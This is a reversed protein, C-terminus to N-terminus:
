GDDTLSAAADTISYEIMLSGIKSMMHADLMVRTANDDAHGTDPLRRFEIVYLPQSKHRHITFDDPVLAEPMRSAADCLACECDPEHGPVWSEHANENNCM